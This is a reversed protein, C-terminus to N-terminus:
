ATSNKVQSVIPEKPLIFKFCAGGKHASDYWIRGVHREVIEKCM